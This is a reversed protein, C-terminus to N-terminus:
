ATSTYLILPHTRPVRARLVGAEGRGAGRHVADEAAEQPHDHNDWLDEWACRLRQVGWDRRVADQPSAEECEDAGGRQEGEM